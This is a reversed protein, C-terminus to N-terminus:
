KATQSRVRYKNQFILANYGTAETNFCIKQLEVVLSLSDNHIEEHKQMSKISQAWSSHLFM